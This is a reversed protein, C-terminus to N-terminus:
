ILAATPTRSEQKEQLLMQEKKGTKKCLSSLSKLM